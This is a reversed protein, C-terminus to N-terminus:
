ELLRAIIRYTLYTIWRSPVNKRGFDFDSWAKHISEANCRGQEDLKRILVDSMERVRPDQRVSEFASLVDLYKLIRYDTYPYKLRDWGRGIQSDHGAYKIKGRNEWCKLLLELAKGAVESDTLGASRAFAGLV